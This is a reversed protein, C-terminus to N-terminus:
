FLEQRKVALAEDLEFGIFRRGTDTLILAVSGSELRKMGELCDENYIM